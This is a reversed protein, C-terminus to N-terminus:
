DNSLKQSILIKIGFLVNKKVNSPSFLLAKFLHSIAYFKCSLNGYKVSSIVQRSFMIGAIEMNIFEETQMINLTHKSAKSLDNLAAKNSTLSLKGGQVYHYTFNSRIELKKNITLNETLYIQDEAIILNSFKTSPFSARRFFHRWIGPDTAIQHTYNNSLRHLKKVGSSENISVYNAALCDVNSDIPSDLLKMVESIQPMDDSDWFCFWEGQILPLGINRAAGPGGYMGEKFNVKPNDLKEILTKLEKSTKADNWDHVLFVEIPKSHIEALWASLNQLRGFLLTVPTIVSLKIKERSNTSM